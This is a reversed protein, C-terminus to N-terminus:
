DGSGLEEAERCCQKVRQPARVRQFRIFALSWRKKKKKLVYETKWVVEYWRYGQTSDLIHIETRAADKKLICIVLGPRLNWKRIWTILKDTTFTSLLSSKHRVILSSDVSHGKLFDATMVLSWNLCSSRYNSYGWSNLLMDWNSRITPMDLFSLFLIFTFTSPRSETLKSLFPPSLLRVHSSSFM